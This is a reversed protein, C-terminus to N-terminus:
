ANPLEPISDFIENVSFSACTIHSSNVTQDDMYVEHLIYRGDKLIYQELTHLIPDILWYEKIGFKAYVNKKDERDRKISSPTLVEVILDPSGEIGRNTVINIKNRHLMAIDPQRVDFESLILDIPAIFIIFESQCTQNLCNFVESIVLQHVPHPATTLAQLLGDALEYRTGDDPLNAYDEYTWGQEHVREVKKKKSM